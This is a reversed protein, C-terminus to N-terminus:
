NKKREKAIDEIELEEDEILSIKLIDINIKDKEELTKNEQEENEEDIKKNYDKCISNWLVLITSVYLRIIEQKTKQKKESVDM